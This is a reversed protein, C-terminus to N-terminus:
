LKGELSYTDKLKMATTVMQLSKPQAGEIQRWLGNLLQNSKEVRQVPPNILGRWHVLGRSKPVLGVPGPIGFKVLHPQRLIPKPAPRPFCESILVPFNTSIATRNGSLVFANVRQGRQGRPIVVTPACGEACPQESTITHLLLSFHGM